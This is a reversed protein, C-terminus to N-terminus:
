GDTSVTIGAGKKFRKAMKPALGPATREVDDSPQRRPREKSLAVASCVYLSIINGHGGMNWSMHTMCVIFHAINDLVGINRQNELGTNNYPKGHADFRLGGLRISSRASAYDVDERRKEISRM